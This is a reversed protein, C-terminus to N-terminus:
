LMPCDELRKGSRHGSANKDTKIWCLTVRVLMWPLQNDFVTFSHRM